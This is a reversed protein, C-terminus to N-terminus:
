RFREAKSKESFLNKVSDRILVIIGFIGLITGLPMFACNVCSMVFCFTHNRRQKLFRGAYFNCVSLTWGFTMFVLAFIIFFWGFFPPTPPNKGDNMGGTVMMIGLVLHIIPFCSFLANVGAYIKFGLSLQNLHKEDNSQAAFDIQNEYLQQNQRFIAPAGDGAANEYEQFRYNPREDTATPKTNNNSFDEYNM